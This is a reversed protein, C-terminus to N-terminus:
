TASVGDLTFTDRITTVTLDLRNVLFLDVSRDTGTIKLVDRFMNEPTKFREASRISQGALEWGQENFAIDIPGATIFIRSGTVVLEGGIWRSKSQRWNALRQTIIVEDAALKPQPGVVTAGDGWAADWQTTAADRSKSPPPKRGTLRRFLVMVAASEGRLEKPAFIRPFNFLVQSMMIALSAIGALALVYTVSGVL